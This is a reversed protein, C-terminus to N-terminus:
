INTFLQDAAINAYALSTCCKRVCWNRLSCVVRTAVIASPCTHSWHNSQQLRCWLFNPKHWTSIVRTLWLQWKLHGSNSNLIMLYDSNLQSNINTLNFFFTKIKNKNKTTNPIWDWVHYAHARGNFWVGLVLSFTKSFYHKCKIYKFSPPKLLDSRSFLWTSSYPQCEPWMKWGKCIIQINEMKTRTMKGRSILFGTKHKTHLFNLLDQLIQFAQFLVCCNKIFSPFSM